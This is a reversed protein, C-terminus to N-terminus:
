APQTCDSGTRTDTNRHLPPRTQCYCCLHAGVQSRTTGSGEGPHPLVGLPAVPCSSGGEERKPWFRCTEDQGLQRPSVAPKRLTAKNRRAPQERYACFPAEFWYGTHNCCVGLRSAPPANDFAACFHLDKVIRTEDKAQRTESAGMPRTVYLGSFDRASRLYTVECRRVRRGASLSSTVEM